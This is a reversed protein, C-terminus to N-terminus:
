ENDQENIQSEIQNNIKHILEVVQYYPLQTLAQDLIQLDKEDLKIEFMIMDGKHSKSHELTM